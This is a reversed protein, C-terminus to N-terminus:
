RACASAEQDFRDSRRGDIASPRCRISAATTATRKTSFIATRVPSSPGVYLAFHRHCMRVIYCAFLFGRQRPEGRVTYLNLHRGAICDNVWPNKKVLHVGSNMHSAREKCEAKKAKYADGSRASAPVISVSAALALASTRNRDEFADPAIIWGFTCLEVRSRRWEPSTGLLRREALPAIRVEEALRRAECARAQSADSTRRTRAASKGRRETRHRSGCAGRM